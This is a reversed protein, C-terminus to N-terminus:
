IRGRSTQILGKSRSTDRLLSLTLLECIGEERLSENLETFVNAVTIGVRYM